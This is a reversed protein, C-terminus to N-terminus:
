ERALVFSAFATFYVPEFSLTQRATHLTSGQNYTATSHQTAAAGPDIIRFPIDLLTDLRSLSRIFTTCISFTFTPLDLPM